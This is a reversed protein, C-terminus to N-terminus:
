LSWSFFIHFSSFMRRSKKLTKNTKEINSSIHSTLNTIKRFDFIKMLIDSRFNWNHFWEITTTFWLVLLSFQKRLSFNKKQRYLGFLQMKSLNWELYLHCRSCKKNCISEFYYSASIWFLALIIQIICQHHNSM